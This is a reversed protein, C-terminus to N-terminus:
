LKSKIFSLALEEKQKKDTLQNWKWSYTSEMFMIRERLSNINSKLEEIDTKFEIDLNICILYLSVKDFTNYAETAEKYFSNLKKNNVKDPHTLKVIKRYIDKIDKDVEMAENITPIENDIIEDQINVVSEQLQNEREIFSEKEKQLYIEKLKPYRDLISEVMKIFDKDVENLLETHYDIDYGLWEIEKITKELEIKRLNSSM